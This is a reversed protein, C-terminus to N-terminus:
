CDFRAVVFFFFVWCILFILWNDFSSLFASSGVQFQKRQLLYAQIIFVPSTSYLVELQFLSATEEFHRLFQLLKFTRGILVLVYAQACLLRQFPSLSINPWPLNRVTSAPQLSACFSPTNSVSIYIIRLLCIVLEGTATKLGPMNKTRPIM